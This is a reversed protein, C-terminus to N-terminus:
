GCCGEINAKYTGGPKNASIKVSTVYPKGDDKFGQKKAEEIMPAMDPDSMLWETPYPTENEVTVSEFGAGAIAGLYDEKKLAGAICATYADVSEKLSPPIDRVTVLDSVMLRGGPALVRFAERFVRSKDPALNIVCNSIIADVTNDEVPLDEIEGQRFEVNGFDGKRANERAKDIMETTMDVGIVKGTPGVLRSAIFCDVGGGSGLDLVVEGPALSALAVPNGCGLGMNAGEPISRLEEDSYGIVKAIADAANTPGCCSQVTEPASCGCGTGGTRTAAVKGYREKVSNKIETENM